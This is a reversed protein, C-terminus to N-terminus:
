KKYFNLIIEHAFNKDGNHVLSNEKCLFEEIWVTDLQKTEQLFLKIFVPNNLNLLLKNDAQTWVIWDPVQNEKQWQQIKKILTAEEKIQLWKKITENNIKWKAPSLIVNKYSVRPFFDFLNQLDGWNFQWTRTINQYPFLSLFHYVPLARLHFNHANTLRPMIDKGHKKSFLKLKGRADAQVMIDELQIQQEFPVSPQALYPIEYARLTPRMLINGVRAEPLHAIEAMIQDPHKLAEKKTIAKLFNEIKPNLFGFRALLNGASIGGATKIVPKLQGNETVLNIMASFTDPYAQKVSTIGNFDKRSLKIEYAKEKQAIKLKQYLIELIPHWNIQTHQDETVPFDLGDLLPNVSGSHMATQLPIGLESDLALSLPIAENEFRQHLALGFNKLTSNETNIKIQALFDVAELVEDAINQSLTNTHTAIELDTQFLYRIDYSAPLKDLKRIIKQYHVEPTKSQDLVKLEQQIDTLQTAYKKTKPYKQLIEILRSLYYKGTVAANLESVLLQEEILAKIFHIATEKDIEDSVLESALQDISAGQSATQLVQAIYPTREISVTKYQRRTNEIRHFIYRWENDVTYISTNPYFLINDQIHSVKALEAALNVLYDMDLRTQRHHATKQKPQISTQESLIGLSIGSFLGFPTARSQSRLVYKLLGFYLKEIKEKSLSKIDLTNIYQHFNPSAVFLANMFQKDKIIAELSEPIQKQEIKLLNKLNLANVPIRLVYQAFAQYINKVSM